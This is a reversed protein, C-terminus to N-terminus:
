QRGHKICTESLIIIKLGYLGKYQTMLVSQNIGPDDKEGKEGRCKLDEPPPHLDYGRVWEDLLILYSSCFKFSCIDHLFTEFPIHMSPTIKIIVKKNRSLCASSSRSAYSSDYKVKLFTHLQKCIARCRIFQYYSKSLLYYVIVWTRHAHRTKDKLIKHKHRSVKRLVYRSTLRRRWYVAMSQEQLSHAWWRYDWLRTWSVCRAVGCGRKQRLSPSSPM